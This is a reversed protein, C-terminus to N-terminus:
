FKIDSVDVAAKEFDVHNGIDLWYKKIPYHVVNKNLEFLRDLLDTANYFSDSPILEILERKFIYIGASSYYTYTPKEVINTIKNDKSEIVGYPIQVKYNTSAVIMDANQTTLMYFMAELDINTLLDSNMVLIYDNTFNKIQKVAGITGLPVDETIYNITKNNKYYDIIVDKLYKVSLTINQVGHSNLLDINYDLIPKDGVKLMPKPTDKTLPMLRSGIGGAMIVADIPLITKIKSFDLVEHLTKDKTLVPIITINKQKIENVKRQNFSEKELYIFTKNMFKEVTENQSIGRILGRRVDGDTLVGVIKSNDEIM